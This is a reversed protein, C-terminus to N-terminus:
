SCCAVTPWDCQRTIREGENMAGTPSWTGTAPNYIEADPNSGGGAMLVRGDLLVTATHGFRAASMSAAASWSNTSAALTPMPVALISLFGVVLGITKFM